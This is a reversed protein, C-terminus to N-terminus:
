RVAKGTVALSGLIGLQNASLFPLHADPYVLSIPIREKDDAINIGETFRMTTSGYPWQASPTTYVSLSRRTISISSPYAPIINRNAAFWSGVDFCWDILWTWPILQWASSGDFTLGLVAKRARARMEGPSLYSLDQAPKWRVHAGYQVKSSAYYPVVVYYDASQPNWTGSGTDEHEFLNGLPITRRLGKPGRLRELEKIRKEVQDQFDCLKHLDEVLPLWNFQIDLNAAGLSKVNRLNTLSGVRGQRHMDKLFTDGLNKISQVLDGLQLAEVPVDIYPRNPQTRAVAKLALDNLSPIGSTNYFHGYNPGQYQYADCMKHVWYIAAWGIYPSDMYGGILQRKRITLSNNDGLGIVDDITKSYNWVDHGYDIQGFRETYGNWTVTVTSRSRNTM